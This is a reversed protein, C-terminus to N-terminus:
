APPGERRRFWGTLSFRTRRSPLVEHWFADSLFLVLRGAGPLIELFPGSLGAARDTYLRLQGGDETTWAENLYVIASVVRASGGRHCDLHPKYFSGPPYCALHAELDFLGLFLGRNLGARLAEMTRWYTDQAETLAAPDLWLVEDGRIESRVQKGGGRGVAAGRLIGRSRFAEIEGRLTAVTAGELFDDVVAHGPGALAAAVAEAFPEPLSSETEPRFRM